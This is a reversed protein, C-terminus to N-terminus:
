YGISSAFRAFSLLQIIGYLNEQGDGCTWPASIVIAETGDAKPARLLGYSNLGSTNLPPVSFSQSSVKLGFSDFQQKIFAHRSTNPQARKLYVSLLSAMSKETIPITSVGLNMLLRLELQRMTGNGLSEQHRNLVFTTLKCTMLFTPFRVQGISLAKEDPEATKLFLKQPFAALVLIALPFFVWSRGNTLPHLHCRKV